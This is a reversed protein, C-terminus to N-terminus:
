PGPFKSRVMYKLVSSVQFNLVKQRFVSTSTADSICYKLIQTDTVGHVFDLLLIINIYIARKVLLENTEHLYM